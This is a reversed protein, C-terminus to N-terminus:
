AGAESRKRAEIEQEMEKSISALAQNSLAAYAASNWAACAQRASQILQDRRIPKNLLIFEDGIVQNIDELSHDSYATYFCIKVEPDIARIQRAAELGDIGPPMRMDLFILAYPARRKVADLVREVAEEGDSALTLEFRQRALGAAQLPSEEILGQMQRILVEDGSEEIESSLVKHYMRRILEEDDVALVRRNFAEEVGEM